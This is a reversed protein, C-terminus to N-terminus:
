MALAGLGPQNRFEGLELRDLDLVQGVGFVVQGVFPVLRRQGAGPDDGARRAELVAEATELFLLFRAIDAVDRLVM